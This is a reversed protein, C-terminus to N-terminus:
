EHGAETIAARFAAIDRECEERTEANMGDLNDLAIVILPRGAEVLKAVKAREAALATEAAEARRTEENMCERIHTMAEDATVGDEMFDRWDFHLEDLYARVMKWLDSDFEQADSKADALADSYLDDYTRQLEKIQAEQAAIRALIAPVGERCWQFFAADNAHRMSGIRYRKGDPQIVSLDHSSDWESFPAGEAEKCFSPHFQVVRGPTVGELVKGAEALDDPVAAALAALVEDHSLFTRSDQSFYHRSVGALLAAFPNTVDAVDAGVHDM